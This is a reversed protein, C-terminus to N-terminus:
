GQTHRGTQSAWWGQMLCFSLQSYGTCRKFAMIPYHVNHVTNCSCENMLQPPPAAPFSLFSPYDPLRTGLVDKTSHSSYWLPSGTGASSSLPIVFSPSPLPAEFGQLMCFFDPLRCGGANHWLSLVPSAQILTEAWDWFHCCLNILVYETKKKKKKKSWGDLAWWKVGSSIWFLELFFNTWCCNDRGEKWM